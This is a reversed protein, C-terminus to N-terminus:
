WHELAEAYMNKNDKTKFTPIFKDDVETVIMKVSLMSVKVSQVLKNGVYDMLVVNNDVWNQQM